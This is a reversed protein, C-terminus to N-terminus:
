QPWHRIIATVMNVILSCWDCLVTARHSGSEWIFKSPYSSAPYHGCDVSIYVKAWNTQAHQLQTFTAPPTQVSCRQFDVRSCAVDTYLPWGASQVQPVPYNCMLSVNRCQTWSEPFFCYDRTYMKCHRIEFFNCTLLVVDFQLCIV